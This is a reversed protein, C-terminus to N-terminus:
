SQLGRYHLTGPAMLVIRRMGLDAQLATRGARARVPVAGPPRGIRIKLVSQRLRQRLLRRRALDQPADGARRGIRLRHDVASVRARRPEALSLKAKDVPEVAVEEVEHRVAAEGGLHKLDVSARIRRRWTPSANRSARYELLTDHLNRIDGRVGVVGE